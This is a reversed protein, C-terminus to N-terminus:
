AQKKPPTLAPEANGSPASRQHLRQYEAMAKQADAPRGLAQFARALQLHTDGDQDDKVGIALHPLADGYRGVQM